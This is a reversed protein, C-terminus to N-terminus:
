GGAENRPCDWVEFWRVGFAGRFLYVCVSDGTAVRAYIERGVSVEESEARPGWPTLKLHFFKGNDTSVRKAAVQTMHKAPEGRDFYVNAIMSAGYAYPAIMLIAMGLSGSNKRLEPLFVLLILLLIATAAASLAAVSTWDLIEIDLMARLMLVMGPLMLPASVDAVVDNRALNIRYVSPGASVMAVAVWPVLALCLVSLHYPQPHFWAWGGAALAAYFLWKANRRAQELAAFKEENSGAVDSQELFNALAANREEADVDPISAFWRDWAADTAIYQPLKLSRVRTTNTLLQIVSPGDGGSILRRGSIDAREMRKIVFMGRTEIADAYLTVRTRIVSALVPLGLLAFFGGLAMVLVRDGLEDTAFLFYGIGAFGLLIAFAGIGWMFRRGSGGM